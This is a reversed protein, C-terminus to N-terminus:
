VVIRLTRLGFRPVDPMTIRNGDARVGFPVVADEGDPSAAVVERFPVGLTLVVDGTQGEANFVRVLFGDATKEAASLTVGPTEVTVASWEDTVTASTAFARCLFPQAFEDGKSYLGAEDWRGGHPVLTISNEQMGDLRCNGWWFGSQGGYALTLGLPYEKGHLYSNTRDGYLALGNGTKEDYSDVWHVLVKHKIKDWGMFFTNDLRSKEVNFASEKYLDGSGFVTPFVAHLKYRDDHDAKKYELNGREPPIQWPNGVQVGGHFFFQHRIGIAESGKELRLFTKFAQDCLKGELMVTLRLPNNEWVRATVPVGKTSFFDGKDIFYGRIEGFLYESNDVLELSRRKDFLSSFTGGKTLDVTIRYLDNELILRGEEEVVSCGDLVSVPTDTPAVGYTAYGFGPVDAEFLVRFAIKNSRYHRICSAESPVTKGDKDTIRVFETGEPVTVMLEALGKRRHGATNYVRIYQSKKGTIDIESEELAWLADDTVRECLADSQSTWAEARKGWRGAAACIWADHHQSLLLNYWADNLDRTPYAANAFLSAMTALKEATMLKTESQRVQGAMRNLTKEGWPLTVLIDEQSFMWDKTPKDAIKDVYERWTTYKQYRENVWPLGRWGLDQFEVGVPHAIGKNLCKQAFVDLAPKDYGSGQIAWCFILDECGYRPVAAIRSGDPGVWFVVEEDKGATYGGWCTSNKLSARRFGLSNLIQPLSSTWCPEQVAYTDVVAKPFSEKILRKGYTLQRIVSEGNIAWSFAQAHSASAIEVRIDDYDAEVYDKLRYFTEPEQKKLWDFSLPEVELTVKWDPHSDLGNLVDAMSGPGMHGIRGGHFGDVFYLTPSDAPVIPQEFIPESM